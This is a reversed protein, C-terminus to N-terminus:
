QWGKAQEYALIFQANAKETESLSVTDDSYNPDPTYWDQSDFYNQYTENRFTRGHRAYIENRALAVQQQDMGALDAETILRSDSPLLYASEAAPPTEATDDPTPDEPPTNDEPPVTNDPTEPTEPQSAADDGDPLVPDQSDPSPDVPETQIPDPTQTGNEGNLMPAVALFYVALVALVLVLMLCAIMTNRRRVRRKSPRRPAKRAPAEEAAPGDSQIIWAGCNKCFFADDEMPHNCNPCNM